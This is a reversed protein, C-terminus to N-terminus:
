RKLRSTAEALDTQAQILDQQARAEQMSNGSARAAQFAQQKDALAQQKALLDQASTTVEPSCDSKISAIAEALGPVQSTVGNMRGADLQDVLARM